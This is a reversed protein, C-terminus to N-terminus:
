EASVVIKGDVKAVTFLPRVVPEMQLSQETVKKQLDQADYVGVVKYDHEEDIGFIITGGGSQNSFSSLTNYTKAPAGGQAKKLEVHQKECKETTIKRVLQRLEEELM